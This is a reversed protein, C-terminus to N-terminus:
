DWREDVIDDRDIGYQKCLSDLEDSPDGYITTCDQLEGDSYIGIFWCESNIWAAYNALTDKMYQLVNDRVKKSIRKVNYWERVTQKDALMYGSMGSDFYAHGQSLSGDFWDHGLRLAVGGHVYAYVPVAIYQGSNVIENLDDLTDVPRNGLVTRADSRYTVEFLSDTLPDDAFPDHSVKIENVASIEIEEGEWDPEVNYFENEGFVDAGGIHYQSILAHLEERAQFREGWIVKRYIIRGDPLSVTIENAPGVGPKVGKDLLRVVKGSTIEAM